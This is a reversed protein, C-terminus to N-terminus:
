NNKWQSLLISGKIWISSTLLHEKKNKWRQKKKKGSKRGFLGITQQEVVAAEILFMVEDGHLDNVFLYLKGERCTCSCLLERENM